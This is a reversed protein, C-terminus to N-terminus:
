KLLNGLANRANQWDSEAVYVYPTKWEGELHIYNIKDQDIGIYTRIMDKLQTSPIDTTINNGVADIIEGAKIVGTGSKLKGLVEAVVKQQRANREMDSSDPTVGNNSKRYRVFDLAQKGTLKQIGAKLNINTGDAKDVYRMNMDVDVTIGGLADVVDQFGNFNILVMYDVPIQLVSGFVQKIKTQATAKSSAMLNAYFANAKNADMGKVSDIYTDRPISVVAASQTEPNLTAVMIVDTNLGGTKPRSDVGLVLLSIPKVKASMVPPVEEDTGIQEILNDVKFFYLYSAYVGVALCVLLLLGLIGFLVKNLKRKPKPKRYRLARQPLPTAPESM